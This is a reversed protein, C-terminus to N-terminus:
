SVDDEDAKRLLGFDAANADNRAAPDALRDPSVSGLPYQPFGMALDSAAPCDGPNVQHQNGSCSRGISGTWLDETLDLVEVAPGTKDAFGLTRVNIVALSRLRPMGRRSSLWRFTTRGLPPSDGDAPTEARQRGDSDIM